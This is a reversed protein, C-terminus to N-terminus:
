HTIEKLDKDFDFNPDNALNHCRICFKIYECRKCDKKIGYITDEKKSSLMSIHELSPGHCTECGVAALDESERINKFGTRKEFGTTHCKLCNSEENKGIYLLTKYSRAHRTKKWSEYEGVHCERCKLSGVFGGGENVEFKNEHYEFIISENTMGTDKKGQHCSEILLLLAAIILIKKL